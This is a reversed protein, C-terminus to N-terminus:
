KKKYLHWVTLLASLSAIFFILYLINQSITWTLLRALDYFVYIGFTVLFGLGFLKKKQVYILLGFIAIAAELLISLYHLAIM